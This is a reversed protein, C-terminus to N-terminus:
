FLIFFFYLFVCNRTRPKKEYFYITTYVFPNSNKYVDKKKKLKMESIKKMGYNRWLYLFFFLTENKWWIEYCNKVREKVSKNKSFYSQFTCVIAATNSICFKFFTSIRIKDKTLRWNLTKKKLEASDIFNNEYFFLSFLFTNAPWAKNQESFIRCIKAQALKWQYPITQNSSLVNKPHNQEVNEVWYLFNFDDIKHVLTLSGILILIYTGGQCYHKFSLELKM